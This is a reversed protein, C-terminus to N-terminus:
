AVEGKARRLDARAETLPRTVMWACLSGAITGVFWILRHELVYAISCGVAWTLPLLYFAWLLAVVRRMAAPSSTDDPDAYHDTDTM